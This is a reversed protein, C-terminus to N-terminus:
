VTGTGGRPSTVLVTTMDSFELVSISRITVYMANPHSYQLPYAETSPVTWGGIPDSVGRLSTRTDSVYTNLAGLSSVTVASLKNTRSGYPM